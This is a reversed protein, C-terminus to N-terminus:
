SINSPCLFRLHAHNGRRQAGSPLGSEMETGHMCEEEEAHVCVSYPLSTAGMYLGSPHSFVRRDARVPNYMFM